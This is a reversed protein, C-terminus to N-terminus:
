GSKARSSGSQCGRASLSVFFTRFKQPGVPGHAGIWKAVPMVVPLEALGALEPAVTKRFPRLGKASGLGVLTQTTHFPTALKLYGLPLRVAVSLAAIGMAVVDM